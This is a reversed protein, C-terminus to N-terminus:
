AYYLCNGSADKKLLNRFLTKLIYAEYEDHCKKCMWKRGFKDASQKRENRTLGDFLYCPVDHSEELEKEEFEKKCGFCKM